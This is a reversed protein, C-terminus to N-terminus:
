VSVDIYDGLLQPQMSWSQGRQGLYLFLIELQQLMIHVEISVVPLPKCTHSSKTM